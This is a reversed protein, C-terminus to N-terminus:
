IVDVLGNPVYVYAENRADDDLIECESAFQLTTAGLEVSSSAPTDEVGNQAPVVSACVAGDDCVIDVPDENDGTENQHPELFDLTVPREHLWLM